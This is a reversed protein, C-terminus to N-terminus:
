DQLRVLSSEFQLHKLALAARQQGLLREVARRAVNGEEELLALLQRQDPDLDSPFSDATVGPAIRFFSILRREFGPPLMLAVSDFLPALYHDSIWRALGIQVPSLLPSPDILGAIDRTEEVAPRDTLQLVVGQIVRPGFPVWVAQGPVPSLSPPISYSFTRRQAVPSNVAVQAYGM